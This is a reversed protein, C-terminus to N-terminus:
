AVGIVQYADDRSQHHRLERKVVIEKGAVGIDITIGLTSKHPQKHPAEVIVRCSIIGDFFRELRAVRERVRAELAQSSAMNHFSIQLPVQM